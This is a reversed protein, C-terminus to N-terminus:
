CLLRQKCLKHNGAVAPFETWGPLLRGTWIFQAAMPSQQGSIISFWSFKNYYLTNILWEHHFYGTMQLDPCLKPKVIILYDHPFIHQIM